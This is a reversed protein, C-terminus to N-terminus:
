EDNQAEKDAALAAPGRAMIEAIAYLENGQRHAQTALQHMACLGNMNWMCATLCKGRRLPCYGTKPTMM